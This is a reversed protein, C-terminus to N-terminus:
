EAFPNESLPTLSSPPTTTSQTPPPSVFTSYTGTVTSSTAPQASWLQLTGTSPGAITPTPIVKPQRKFVLIGLGIATVTTLLLLSLLSFRLRWLYRKLLQNEEKQLDILERLLQDDMKM